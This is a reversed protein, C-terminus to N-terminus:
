STSDMTNSILEAVESAECLTIFKSLLMERITETPEYGVSACDVREQKVSSDACGIPLLGMFTLFIARKLSM